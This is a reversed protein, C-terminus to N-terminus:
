LMRLILHHCEFDRPFAKNKPVKRRHKSVRHERAPFTASPDLSCKRRRGPEVCLAGEISSFVNAATGAFLYGLMAGAGSFPAYRCTLFNNHIDKVYEAVDGSGDGKLVKAELPWMFRRNELWYFAIDYAKPQARGGRRLEDEFPGHQARYPAESPVVEQIEQALVQTIGREVNDAPPSSRFAPLGLVAFSDYAKWVHELLIDAADAQWQRALDGPVPWLCEGPSVGLPGAM